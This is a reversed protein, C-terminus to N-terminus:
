ELDGLEKKNEAYYFKIPYPFVKRILSTKRYIISVIAM